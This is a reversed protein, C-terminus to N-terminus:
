QAAAETIVRACEKRARQSGAMARNCIAVMETDGANGAEERLAIIQEDTITNM